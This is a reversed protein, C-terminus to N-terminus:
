SDIFTGEKIWQGFGLLSFSDFFFMERPPGYGGIVNEVKWDLSPLNFDGLIIVERGVCFNSIFSVLNENQTLSSSPPRYVALIYVDLDLLLVAVVNPLDVGMQIFALSDRVYLCCGHKRVFLSSDGRAVRFGDISIFSSSVSPILWTECVAVVSLVYEGIMYFIEFVCSQKSVFKCEGM